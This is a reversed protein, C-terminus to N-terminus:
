TTFSLQKRARKPNVLNKIKQEPLTTKYSLMDAPLASLQHAADWHEIIKGNDLRFVDIGTITMPQNSPSLGMFTGKHTGSITYWAMVKDGQCIVKNVTLEFDPFAESVAAFFRKFTKLCSPRSSTICPTTNGGMRYNTPQSKRITIETYLQAVIEQNQEIIM